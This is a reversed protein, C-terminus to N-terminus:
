EKDPHTPILFFLVFTQAATLLLLFIKVPYLPVFYISIGMLLYINLIIKVKKKRSITRTKQYDGVYTQYLKTGKLWEDFRSSGKAFCVGALLLFPTTPLIPLLVGITGLVFSVIGGLVLLKNLM